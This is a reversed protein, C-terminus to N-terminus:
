PVPRPARQLYGALALTVSRPMMRTVVISIKNYIGPVCLARGAKMAQWGAAAVDIADFKPLLKFLAIKDAGARTLFPTRVPGPCLCTVTVGTGKVEQMLAQSISLLYAKSAFYVAMRPGPAFGAISGVNLIAGSGRAVMAPLFRLMLDTAARINVEAIGLQTERDLDVAEGYLGFGANNILIHCYLDRAELERAITEGADRASLDLSLVVASLGSPDLNAALAELEPRSRAILVVKAGEAAAL